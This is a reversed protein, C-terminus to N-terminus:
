AVVPEASGCQIFSPAGDMAYKAIPPFAYVKRDDQTKNFKCEQKKDPGAAGKV